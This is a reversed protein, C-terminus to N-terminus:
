INGNIASEGCIGSLISVTIVEDSFFLSIPSSIIM